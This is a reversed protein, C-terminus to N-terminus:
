GALIKRYIALIKGAVIRNDFNLIRYRGETRKGYEIAKSLAMAVEEKDPLCIFCGETNGIIEKVDGVDVSVIPCGCAMAEKIIQPSGETFSTMLTVDVTNLLQCVQERTCGKLEILKVDPLLKVADQALRPNKVRNDFISSFLALKETESFGSLQRCTSKDLLKFLETDVGCSILSYNRKPHAKDINRQSVFINYRSLLMSIKSLYLIKVNNIDSGHYTTVVPVKRQLNAMLGSLGYHAHILNPQFDNIKLLLGKRSKWYGSLGRESITYFEIEVGENRLNEVQDSIFPAIRGQNISCVILVKM